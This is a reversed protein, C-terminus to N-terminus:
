VSRRDIRDAAEWDPGAGPQPTGPPPPGPQQTQNPLQQPPEPPQQMAQLALKAANIQDPNPFKGEQMLMAIVAVNMMDDGKFSYSINPPEPPKPGAPPMAIRAPDIGSLEAMEEILPDVNVRGSKATLNVFKAIRDLRQNADLLVTSDPLVSFVFEQNLQQRPWAQLRQKEEPTLMPFDDYLSMLGAFVEAIGVVFAEVRSRNFGMTTAANQQVINAESASREGSAFNGLQNAGLQWSEQLDAKIIRDFTFDEPPFTSRTVERIAGEPDGKVPLWGQITGRQMNASVEPDFRNVNFARVPLSRDRQLIMQSRSRIQENVQPRAAATDSPPIPDDSVYDLTLIRIPLKCVGQYTGDAGNFRQGKWQEHIAPDTKGVVFVIRWIEDFYKCDPDFRARWYFVEDFEVMETEGHKDEATSTNRLTDEARLATSKALTAREEDKLRFDRKGEAWTCRGSHGLYPSKDWDSGTFSLDWILDSPSLRLGYFQRSTIRTAMMQPMQAQGANVAALFTPDATQPNQTPVPVQETLARYGCLVAGIGAANVVDITAERMSDGIGAKRMRWNIAKAYPFGAPKATQNDTHLRVEPLQSALQAVKRRVLPWDSNVYVRDEDTEVDFPKGRYFDVNRAWEGQVLDRRKRKCTSIRTRWAKDSLPDNADPLTKPVAAPVVTPASSAVPPAPTTSAATDPLM